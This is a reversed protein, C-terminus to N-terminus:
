SCQYPGAAVTLKVLKLAHLVAFSVGRLTMGLTIFDFIPETGGLAKETGLLVSHIIALM